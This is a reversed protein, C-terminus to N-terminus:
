EDSVRPMRYILKVHKHSKEQRRLSRDTAVVNPARVTFTRLPRLVTRASCNPSFLSLGLFFVMPPVVFASLIRAVHTGFGCGDCMLRASFLVMISSAVVVIKALVLRMADPTFFSYLTMTVLTLLSFAGQIPTLVRGSSALAVFTPIRRVMVAWKNTTIQAVTISFAAALCGGIMIYEGIRIGDWVPHPRLLFVLFVAVFATVRAYFRAFSRVHLCHGSPPPGPRPEAAAPNIPRIDYWVRMLEPVVTVLSVVLIAAYLPLFIYIRDLSIEFRGFLLHEREAFHRGVPVELETHPPAMLPYTLGRREGQVERALERTSNASALALREM